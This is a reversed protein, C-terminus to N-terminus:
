KKYVTWYEVKFFIGYIIYISNNNCIIRGHRPPASQARSISPGEPPSSGEQCPAMLAEEVSVNLCVVQETTVSM